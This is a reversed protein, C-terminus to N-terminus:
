LSSPSEFADGGHANLIMARCYSQHRFIMQSISHINLAMAVSQTATTWDKSKIPLAHEARDLAEWAHDLAMEARYLDCMDRASASMPTVQGTM